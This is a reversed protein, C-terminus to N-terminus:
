RSYETTLFNRLTHATSLALLSPKITATDTHKEGGDIMTTGAHLDTIHSRSVDVRIIAVSVHIMVVGVHTKVM